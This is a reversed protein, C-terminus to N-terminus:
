ANRLPSLVPPSDRRSPPLMFASGEIARLATEVFAHFVCVAAVKIQLSEIGAEAGTGASQNGAKRV